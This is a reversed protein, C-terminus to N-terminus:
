KAGPAVQIRIGYKALITRVEPHQVSFNAVDQLLSNLIAETKQLQKVQDQQQNRQPELIRNHKFIFINLSLSLVLMVTIFFCILKLALFEDKESSNSPSFPDTQM